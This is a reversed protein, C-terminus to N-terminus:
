LEIAKRDKGVIYQKENKFDIVRAIENLNQDQIELNGLYYNLDSKNFFTKAVLKPKESDNRIVAIHSAAHRYFGAPIEVSNVKCYAEILETYKSAM